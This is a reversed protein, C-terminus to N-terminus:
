YVVGQYYDQSQWKYNYHRCYDFSEHWAADYQPNKMMRYDQYFSNMLKNVATGYTALGSQCGDQWGRKYEPTGPVDTAMFLPHPRLWTCSTAILLISIALVIRM